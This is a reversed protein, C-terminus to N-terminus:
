GLFAKILPAATKSGSQGDYVMVAIALNKRWAIMWAHTRPPNGTGYEATGTKGGTMVGQLVRGSGSTVVATTVQQLYKAETPTLPAVTPKPQKDRVLWPITTRGAAISATLGAMAMPSAEVQGQGILNAAKTTLDPAPPVSGFFSPYGADHDVGVGLSAAAAALDNPGLKDRLNMFATNCSTAIADQLTMTGLRSTPFDTYNKFVRGHVNVTPSCNVKSDPKYGKRILALATVTKFTSGPAYRGFTADPNANSAPSTAAAVIEGTSPKVVVIAAVGKQGSLVQEAKMQSEMNLSLQLPKGPKAAVEFLTSEMFPPENAGLPPADKREVLTVKHGPVGRLREDYRAQLGTLGVLDGAEIAGKSKKIQEPTAEGVSGLIARAFNRNPAIVGKKAVTLVGPIDAATPPIESQRLTIAPVFAQPASTQVLKVYKAPDIKVLKALATASAAWKGKELNHKDIGLQFVQREEMLALNGAGVISARPPLARTHRIRTRKDLDPHVISPDWQVYWQDNVLSLKARSTFEWTGAGMTMKQKLSVEAVGSDGYVIPEATVQPLLGDMGSMITAYEKSAKQAGPDAVFPANGLKGTSLATVLKTVTADATPGQKPAAQTTSAGPSNSQDSSGLKSCGTLVLSLSLLGVLLPRPARTM